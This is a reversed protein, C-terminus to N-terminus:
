QQKNEYPNCFPPHAPLFPCRLPISRPSLLMGSRILHSFRVSQHCAHTGLPSTGALIGPPLFPLPHSPAPLLLPSYRPSLLMGSRFLHSFRVSGLTCDGEAAREKGGVGREAVRFGPRFTARPFARRGGILVNRGSSGCRSAESGLSCEGESGTGERGGGRRCGTHFYVVIIIYM